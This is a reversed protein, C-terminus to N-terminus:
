ILLAMLFFIIMKYYLRINLVVVYFAFLLPPTKEKLSFIKQRSKENCKHFIHQAVM